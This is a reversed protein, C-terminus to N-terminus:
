QYATLMKCAYNIKEGVCRSVKRWPPTAYMPPSILTLHNLINWSPLSFDRSQFYYTSNHYYKCEGDWVYFILVDKPHRYITLQRESEQM